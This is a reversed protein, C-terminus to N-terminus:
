PYVGWKRPLIRSSTPLYLMGYVALAVSDSIDRWHTQLLRGQFVYSCWKWGSTSEGWPVHYANKGGMTKTPIGLARYARGQVIDKSVTGKWHSPEILTVPCPLAGAWLGACAGLRVLDNSRIGLSRRDNSTPMEVWAACSARTMSDCMWGEAMDKLTIIWKKSFPQVGQMDAVAINLRKDGNNDSLLAVSLVRMDPDIGIWASM